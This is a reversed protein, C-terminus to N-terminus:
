FMNYKSGSFNSFLRYRKDKDTSEDIDFVSRPFRDSRKVLYPSDGDIYIEVSKLSGLSYVPIVTMSYPLAKRKQSKVGKIVM